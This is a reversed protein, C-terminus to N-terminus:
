VQSANCGDQSANCGDQSSKVLMLVGDQSSKVLMAAMKVLMVVM